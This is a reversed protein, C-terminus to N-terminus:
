ALDSISGTLPLRVHSLPHLISSNRQSHFENLLAAPLFWARFAGCAGEVIFLQRGGFRANASVEAAIAAPL